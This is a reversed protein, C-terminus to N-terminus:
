GDCAQQKDSERMGDEVRTAYKVMKSLSSREPNIGMEVVRTRIQQNMGWWFIDIISRENVDPFHDAM